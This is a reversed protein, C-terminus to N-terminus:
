FEINPLIIKIPVKKGDIEYPTFIPMTKIIGFIEQINYEESFANLEAFVVEGEEDVYIQLFSVMREKTQYRLLISQLKSIAAVHEEQLELLKIDSINKYNDLDTVEKFKQIHIFWPFPIFYRIPVAQGNMKGPKCPPLKRIFQKFAKELGEDVDWLICGDKFFHSSVGCDSAKGSPYIYINTMFGFNKFEKISNLEIDSIPYTFNKSTYVMLDTEGGEFVPREEVYMYDYSSECCEMCFTEVSDKPSYRYNALSNSYLSDTFLFVIIGLYLRKM